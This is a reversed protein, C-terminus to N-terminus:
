EVREGEAPCASEEDCNENEAAPKKKRNDTVKMHGLILFPIGVFIGVLNIIGVTFAWILVRPDNGPPWNIGGFVHTAFTAFILLVSVGCAWPKLRQYDLVVTVIAAAVVMLHPFGHISGLSTLSLLFNAALIIIPISYLFLTM